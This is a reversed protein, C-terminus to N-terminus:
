RHIDIYAPKLDRYLRKQQNGKLLYNRERFRIQKKYERVKDKLNELATMVLLYSEQLEDEISSTYDPFARIVKELHEFRHLISKEEERYADMFSKKKLLDEQTTKLILNYYKKLLLLQRKRLSNIYKGTEM